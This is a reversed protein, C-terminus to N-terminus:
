AVCHEPATPIPRGVPQLLKSIPYVMANIDKKLARDEVQVALCKLVGAIATDPLRSNRLNRVIREMDPPDLRLGRSVARRKLADLITARAAKLVLRAERTSRSPNPIEWHFVLEMDPSTVPAPRPFPFRELADDAVEEDESRPTGDANRCPEGALVSRVHAFDLGGADAIRHAMGDLFDRIKMRGEGLTQDHPPVM